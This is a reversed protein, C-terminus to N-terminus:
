IDFEGGLHMAAALAGNQATRTDSSFAIVLAQREKLSYVKSLHSFEKRASRMPPMMLKGSHYFVLAGLSGARVAEDRANLADLPMKPRKVVVAYQHQGLEDLLAKVPGSFRSKFENLVEKGKTTLIHGKRNSDLYDKDKLDDLISRVVGEGLSLRDVLHARSLRSELFLFARLMDLNSYHPKAGAM